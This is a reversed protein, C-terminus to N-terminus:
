YGLWDFMKKATLKGKTDARFEELTCGHKELEKRIEEESAQYKVAEEYEVTHRRQKPKM